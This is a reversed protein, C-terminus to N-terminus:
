SSSRAPWLCRQELVRQDRPRRPHRLGDMAAEVAAYADVFGWGYTNDEGAAGLDVRRTWSSRSSRPRGDLDPNASRMLAVVGAVHPGAM